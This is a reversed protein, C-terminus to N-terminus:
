LVFVGIEELDDLLTDESLKEENVTMQKAAMNMEVNQIHYQKALKTKIVEACGDCNVRANCKQCELYQIHFQYKM